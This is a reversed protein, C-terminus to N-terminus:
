IKAELVSQTELSTIRSFDNYSGTRKSEKFSCLHSKSHSQATRQFLVKHLLATDKPPRRRHMFCGRTIRLLPSSRYQKGETWLLHHAAAGETGRLIRLGPTEGCLTENRVERGSRRWLCLVGGQRGAFGARGPVTSCAALNEVWWRSPPLGPDPLQQGLPVWCPRSCM